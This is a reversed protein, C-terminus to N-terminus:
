RRADVGDGLLALLLVEFGEVLLKGRVFLRMPLPEVGGQLFEGSRAGGGNATDMEGQLIRRLPSSGPERGALCSMVSAATESFM